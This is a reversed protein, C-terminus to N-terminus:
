NSSWQGSTSTSIQKTLYCIWFDKCLILSLGSLICNGENLILGLDSRTGETSKIFTEIDYSSAMFNRGNKKFSIKWDTKSFLPSSGAHIILLAVLMKALQMNQKINSM